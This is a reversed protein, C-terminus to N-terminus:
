LRRSTLTNVIRERTWRVAGRWLMVWYVAVLAWTLVGSTGFVVTDSRPSYNWTKFMVVATVTYALSALPLMLMALLIRSLLRSM